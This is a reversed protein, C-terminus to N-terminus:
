RIILRETRTFNNNGLTQLLYLGPSFSEVEVSNWGEVLASSYVLRGALNYILLTEGASGNVNLIDVAPNPYSSILESKENSHISTTFNWGAVNEILESNNAIFNAGGTAHNDKLILHNGLVTGSSQEFTAEEGDSSSLIEIPEDATGDLILSETTITNGAQLEIIAGPLVIMEEISFSGTINQTPSGAAGEFTIRYYDQGNSHFSGSSYIETNNLLFQDPSSFNYFLRVDLTIGSLDATASSGEPFNLEFQLTIDNGNAFFNGNQFELKRANLPTLLNLEASCNATVSCNDGLSETAISINADVESQFSINQLAFLIDSNSSFNGYINLNGTNSQNIVAAENINSASFNRCSWNMGGLAVIDGEQLGSNQDFYVDDVATPPNDHIINGGSTTAWHGADEWNGPGGVWFYDMPVTISINWGTNNGQDISEEANFEAGGTANNDQLILYSANVVGSSKSFSAQTGAESSGISIAQVATGNLVFEEATQVSEATLTIESGPLAEFTGYTNNDMIDIIGSFVVRNYHKGGGYFDGYTTTPASFHITANDADLNTGQMVWWLRTYINSTGLNLTPNQAYCYIRQTTHVPYNNTHLTSGTVYVNGASVSDNFHFEGGGNLQLFIGLNKEGTTIQAETESMMMISRFSRDMDNSMTFDGHVFIKDYFGVGNISPSHQIGIATFNHCYAEELDLTVVQGPETFSNADFYVDNEPGPLETHLANGGSTTAWHSLDSWNGGDGVWFYDQCYVSASFLLTILTLTFNKM